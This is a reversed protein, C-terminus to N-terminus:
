KKKKRRWEGGVFIGRGGLNRRVAILIAVVVSVLLPLLIVVVVIVLVLVM